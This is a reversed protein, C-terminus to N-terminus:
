IKELKRITGVVKGNRNVEKTNIGGARWLALYKSHEVVKMNDENGFLTHLPSSWQCSNQKRSARKNDLRQGETNTQVM